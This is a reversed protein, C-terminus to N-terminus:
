QRLERQFGNGSVVAPIFPVDFRVKRPRNPVTGVLKWGRDKLFRELENSKLMENLMADLALAIDEMLEAWTESQLTIKLPDCAAVWSGGKARVARWDVKAQIRVIQQQQM